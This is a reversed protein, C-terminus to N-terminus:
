TGEYLWSKQIYSGWGFHFASQFIDAQQSLFNFHFKDTDIKSRFLIFNSRIHIVQYIRICTKLPYVCVCIHHIHIFVNCLIMFVLSFFSHLVTDGSSVFVSGRQLSVVWNTFRPPGHNRSIFACIFYLRQTNFIVTQFLCFQLFM